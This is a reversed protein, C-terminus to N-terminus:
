KMITAIKLKFPLARDIARFLGPAQHPTIRMCAIRPKIITAVALHNRAAGGHRIQKIRPFIKKCRVQIIKTRDFRNPKQNVMKANRESPKM